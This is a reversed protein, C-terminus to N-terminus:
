APTKTLVWAMAFNPSDSSVPAMRSAPRPFTAGLLCEFIRAQLHLPVLQEQLASHARMSHPATWLLVHCDAPVHPRFPSPGLVIIKAPRRTNKRPLALAAAKRVDLLSSGPDLARSSLSVREDAFPSAPFNSIDTLSSRPLALFADRAPHFPTQIRSPSPLPM